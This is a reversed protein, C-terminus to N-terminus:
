MMEEQFLFLSMFALLLRMREWRETQSFCELEFLIDYSKDTTTYFSFLLGIELSFIVLFKRTSAFSKVLRDSSRRKIYQNQQQTQECVEKM